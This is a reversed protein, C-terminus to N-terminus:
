DIRKVETESKGKGRVEVMDCHNYDRMHNHRRWAARVRNSGSYSQGARSGYIGHGTERRQEHMRGYNQGCDKCYSYPDAVGPYGKVNREGNREEGDTM